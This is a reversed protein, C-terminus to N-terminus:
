ELVTSLATISWLRLDDPCYGSRKLRTWMARYAILYPYDILHYLSGALISNERAQQRTLVADFNTM